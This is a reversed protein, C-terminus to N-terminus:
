IYITNSVTKNYINESKQQSKKLLKQTKKIIKKLKQKAGLRYTDKKDSIEVNLSMTKLNVTDHM